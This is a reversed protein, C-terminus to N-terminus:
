RICKRLLDEMEKYECLFSKQSAILMENDGAKKFDVLYGNELALSRIFERQARGNGERFPHLANIESLYYALRVAIEEKNCGALYWEKRLQDFIVEAQSEIFRVNCFMNGKAIDVIRIKGAWEYVDQFLYKHIKQLHKLDFHGSIPHDFLEKIRLTTFEREFQHLIEQNRINLKNILIDTGPYCYKEDAM